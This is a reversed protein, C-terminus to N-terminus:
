EHAVMGFAEKMESVFNYLDEENSFQLINEAMELRLGNKTDVTYLGNEGEIEILQNVVKLRSKSPENEQVEEVVAEKEVEQSVNILESTNTTVEKLIKKYSSSILSNSVEPFEDKLEQIAEKQNKGSEIIDKARNELIELTKKMSAGMKNIDGKFEKFLRTEMKSDNILYESIKENAALVEDWTLFESFYGTIAREMGSAFRDLNENSKRVAGQEVLLQFIGMQQPTFSDIVRKYKMLEKETIDIETESLGKIITTRIRYYNANIM